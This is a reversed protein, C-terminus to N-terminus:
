IRTFVQMHGRLLVLVGFFGPGSLGILYRAPVGVWSFM